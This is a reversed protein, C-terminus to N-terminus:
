KWTILNREAKKVITEFVSAVVIAIMTWAILDPVMLYAQAKQMESGIGFLPQSLVEGIIVARWGFGMANSIGNFLFPLTSPMYVERILRSGTINYLESMEIFQPNVDRIGSIVGSCILPFMTLMAIFVPVNDPGFWILALLIFSIVPTSRIAVILPNILAYLTHNLATPIGIILALALSIIFGALGRMITYGLDLYFHASLFLRAVQLFVKEPSPLIHENALLLAICKWALLLFCVAFIQIRHNKKMRNVKPIFSLIM